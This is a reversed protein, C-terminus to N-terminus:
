IPWKRAWNPSETPEPTQDRFDAIKYIVPEKPPRLEAHWLSGEAAYVLRNHQDWEAWEAEFTLLEAGSKIDTAEYVVPLRALEIQRRALGCASLLKEGRRCPKEAHDPYQFSGFKASERTRWGNRESLQPLLGGEFANAEADVVRLPGPPHDPHHTGSQNLALTRNDVFRGGGFWTHGLPWLALATWYPPRSVATWSDSYGIVVSPAKHSKMFYVFLRGLPSIDCRDVDPVGKIWQGLELKDSHTHWLIMRTWKTPGRSLIVGIPADRALYVALRPPPRKPVANEEAPAM